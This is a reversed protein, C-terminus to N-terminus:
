ATLAVVFVILGLASIILHLSAWWWHLHTKYLMKRWSRSWTAAHDDDAHKRLASLEPVRLANRYQKAQEMHMRFREYQKLSFIAGMVGLVVLFIGVPIHSTAIKGDISVLGLAAAAAVLVANTLGLRQTEHHRGQQVVDQYLGWIIQKDDM